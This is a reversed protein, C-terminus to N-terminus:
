RSNTNLWSLLVDPPLGHTRASETGDHRYLILTPIARVNAERARDNNAGSRNSLDVVVLTFNSKLYSQVSSDTLANSEFERCAPCWDATFLVLAPKGTARSQQVAKDWDSSWGAAALAGRPGFYKWGVACAIALLAVALLKSAPKSYREVPTPEPLVENRFM